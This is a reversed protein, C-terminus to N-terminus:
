WAQKEKDMEKFETPHTGDHFKMSWDFLGALRWPSSFPSPAYYAAGSPVAGESRSVHLLRWQHPLLCRPRVRGSRSSQM